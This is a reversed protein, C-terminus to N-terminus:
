EEEKSFFNGCGCRFGRRVKFHRQGCTCNYAYTKQQDLGAQDPPQKSSPIVQITSIQMGVAAGGSGQCKEADDLDEFFLSSVKNGVHYIKM